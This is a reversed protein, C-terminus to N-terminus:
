HRSRSGHVSKALTAGLAWIRDIVAEIQLYEAKARAREREGMGIRDFEALLPDARRAPSRLTSM